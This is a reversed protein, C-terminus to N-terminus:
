VRTAKGECGKLTARVIRVEDYKRIPTSRANYKQRLEKFLASLIIQRRVFSPASFHAERSKPRARFDRRIGRRRRARQIRRDQRRRPSHVERQVPHGYAGPLPTTANKCASAVSLTPSAITALPERSPCNPSSTGATARM